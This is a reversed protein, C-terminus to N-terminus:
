AKGHNYRRVEAIHATGILAAMWLLVFYHAHVEAAPAIVAFAAASMGLPTRGARLAIIMMSAAVILGLLKAMPIGFAPGALCALALNVREPDSCLPEVAALGQVYAHWSSVGVFPLTLLCMIAAALASRIMTRIGAPASLAYPFVKVVTLVATLPAAPWGAWVIGMAGATAINVNGVALGETAPPFIALLALAAALGRISHSPWGRRIVMVLGTLFTGFLFAEWLAAGVPWSAFPTMLPVSAPPYSYSEGPPTILTSIRGGPYTDGGALWREVAGRYTQWDFLWVGTRTRLETARAIVAGVFLAGALLCAVYDIGSATGKASPAPRGLIGPPGQLLADQPDIRETAM